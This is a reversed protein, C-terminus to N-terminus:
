LIHIIKLGFLVNITSFVIVTADYAGKTVLEVCCCVKKELPYSVSHLFYKEM